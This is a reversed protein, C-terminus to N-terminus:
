RDDGSLTEHPTLTVLDPDATKSGCGWGGRRGLWAQWVVRYRPSSPTLALTGDYGALALRGMTEGVGRGEQLAAEPGGGHLRVHRLRGGVADLLAAAQSGLAVASPDADWALELAPDAARAQAVADPGRVVLAARAGLEVLAGALDARAAVDGPGDVLIPANLARSLHALAEPASGSGVLRFGTVPVGREAAQVARFAAADPDDPTVGHGDGQRLELAALGRREGAELLAALPADADAGSCLGLRM